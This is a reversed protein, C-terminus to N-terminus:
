LIILVSYNHSCKITTKVNKSKSFPLFICLKEQSEFSIKIDSHDKPFFAYAFNDCIEKQIIWIQIKMDDDNQIIAEDSNVQFNQVHKDSPRYNKVQSGQKLTVKFDGDIQEDSIIYASYSSPITFSYQEEEEIETRYYGSTLCLISSILLSVM